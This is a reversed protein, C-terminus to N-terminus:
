LNPYDLPNTSANVVKCRASNRKFVITYDGTFRGKIYPGNVPLKVEKWAGNKYPHKTIDSLDALYGKGAEVYRSLVFDIDGFSTRIRRWTLKTVDDEVDAYRNANWLSDIAMRLFGGVFFKTPVNDAGVRNWTDYLMTQFIYESIPAGALDYLVDTYFDLGGMTTPTASTGTMAAESSRRGRFALKEFLIAAEKMRKELYQDYKNGGDFEYDPTNNERESVQIAFDMLQPTFWELSGKAVGTLPTDANELAAPPLLEVTAGNSHTAATSGAFGRKVTVVDGAISVTWFHESDIVFQQTPMLKAGDGSILTVTTGSTDSVAAGLTATHPMLYSQGLEIKKQNVPKGDKISSTLPTETPELYKQFDAFLRITMGTLATGGTLSVDGTNMAGRIITPTGLAM